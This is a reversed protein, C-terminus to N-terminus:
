AGVVSVYAGVIAGVIHMPDIAYAEAEKRIKARLSSDSALLDYVKRYKGEFTTKLAQTRKSSAGPIAPQESHRNGEPVTTVAMAPAAVLFACILSIAPVTLRHM